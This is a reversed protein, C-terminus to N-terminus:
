SSARYPRPPGLRFPPTPSTPHFCRGTYGRGRHNLAQVACLVLCMEPSGRVNSSQVRTLHHRYMIDLGSFYLGCLQQGLVSAISIRTTRGNYWTNFSQQGPRSLFAPQHLSLKPLTKDNESYKWHYAILVPSPLPSRRLSRRCGASM